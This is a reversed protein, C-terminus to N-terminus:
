KSLQQLYTLVKANSYDAGGEHKFVMKGKKDFIVTTPIASGLLNAPIASNAQYVPFTFQHKKVFLVSRSFDHDTDVMIFVINKNDKLKEQLDNISPMEAICPPCWTAWFNIFVVKGKQDSLNITEGDSNEFVIEPLDSVENVKITQSVDPQFLGVKMLGRILIAKASPNFIIIIMAIAFLGNLLNNITLNKKITKIFLRNKM